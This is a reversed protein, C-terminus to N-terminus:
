CRVSSPISVVRDELWESNSLDGSTCNQYMVLKNTLRWLPRTMVKQDNTKRLFFEKENKDDLIISMLWYNARADKIEEIFTVKICRFFDAYHNALQRKNEVFKQLQELQACALAANLNPMRYNYGLMDHVYEWKHSVKATTTIHKALRGLKPDNTIIVGGGGSTVIKNGNLSLVGLLGFSGTHKNKYHSGLSEASDEVVPINYQNCVEIIKDIRTPFGFTHMPICAAIRQGTLNNYCGDSKVETNHRLFDNLKEPSMGLTDIDVDVFVPRANLYAIANSTAVFSIAQTIVEEGPKVGALLLAIHLASTGNVTAIAYEVGTIEKVAEEFKDVYAGVSSVFTSDVADVVYKRENGIFKPEHLPIFGDSNFEKRIFCIIENVKDM